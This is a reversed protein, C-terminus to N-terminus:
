VELSLINCSKVNSRHIQLHNIIPLNWWQALNVNPKMTQNLNSCTPTIRTDWFLWKIFLPYPERAVVDLHESIAKNLFLCIQGIKNCSRDPWPANLSASCLSLPSFIVWSDFSNSRKLFNLQPQFTAVVGTFERPSSASCATINSLLLEWQSRATIYPLNFNYLIAPLNRCSELYLYCCRLIADDKLM